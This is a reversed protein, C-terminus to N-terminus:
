WLTPGMHLIGNPFTAKDFNLVLYVFYLCFAGHGCLSFTFSFSGLILGQVQISMTSIILPFPLPTLYLCSLLHLCCIKLTM